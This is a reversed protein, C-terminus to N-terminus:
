RQRIVARKRLVIPRDAGTEQLEIRDDRWRHVVREPGGPLLAGEQRTYTLALDRGSLRWTGSATRTAGDRRTSLFRFAGGAQLELSLRLDGRDLMYIGRAAEEVSQESPELPPLVVAEPAAPPTGRPPSEAPEDEAGRALFIVLIAICLLVTALRKM